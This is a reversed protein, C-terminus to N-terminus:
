APRRRLSAALSIMGLGVIAACLVAGQRAVADGRINVLTADDLKTIREPALREVKIRDLEGRLENAIKQWARLEELKAAVNVNFDDLSALVKAQDAVNEETAKLMAELHDKQKELLPLSLTNAAPGQGALPSDATRGDEPTELRAEALAIALSNEMLQNALKSRQSMYEGLKELQMRKNVQATQTDRTKHLTELKHLTDSQTKIEATYTEYTSMLKREQENRLDREHQVIEKLYKDVVTDVIKKAEGAKTSKLAVRLIESDDPYEVMLQGKLWAAPEDDHEQIVSLQNVEPESVARQLVHDSLLLQAQTRKFISFEDPPIDAPKALVYPPRSLVKLLAFAEYHVPVVFWAVGAGILIVVGLGITWSRM